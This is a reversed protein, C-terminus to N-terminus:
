KIDSIKITEGISFDNLSCYIKTQHKTFKDEKFFKNKKKGEDIATAFKTLIVADPLDAIEKKLYWGLCHYGDTVLLVGAFGKKIAEKFTDEDAKLAMLDGFMIDLSYDITYISGDERSFTEEKDRNLERLKNELKRVSYPADLYCYDSGGHSDQTWWGIKKSGLYVNGQYLPEGEHGLFKKLGKITIGNISAM